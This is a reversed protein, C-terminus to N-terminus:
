QQNARRAEIEDLVAQYPGFIDLVYRYESANDPRGYPIVESLNWSRGNTIQSTIADLVQWLYADELEVSIKEAPWGWILKSSALEIKNTGLGLLDKTEFISRPSENTISVSGIYTLSLANTAPYIYISDTRSEYRWAHNNMCEMLVGLVHGFTANTHTASLTYDLGTHKYIMIVEKESLANTKYNSEIYVNLIRRWDHETLDEMNICVNYARSLDHMAKSMNGYRYSPITFETITNTIFSQSFVSSIFTTALMLITITKKM